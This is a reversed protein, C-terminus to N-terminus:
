RSGFYPMQFAQQETPNLGTWMIETLAEKAQTNMRTFLKEFYIKLESPSMKKTENLLSTISISPVDDQRSYDSIEIGM